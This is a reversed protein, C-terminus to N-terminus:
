GKGAHEHGEPYEAFDRYLLLNRMNIPQDRPLNKFAQFNAPSPDIHCEGDM